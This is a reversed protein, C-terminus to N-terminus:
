TRSWSTTFSVKEVKGGVPPNLKSIRLKISTVSPFQEEVSSVIRGGVHELLHSKQEMETKVAHYLNVYNLTDHLHDSQEAASTDAEVDMDVVFKTGIVQEESFCGHYAFFEMGELSIKGM